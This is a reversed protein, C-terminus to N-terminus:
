YKVVFVLDAGILFAPTADAVNYVHVEGITRAGEAIADAVRRTNGFLSEYVIVTKM